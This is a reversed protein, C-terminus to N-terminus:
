TRSQNELIEDLFRSPELEKNYYEKVEYIHLHHRARTMAVYFMRREEEIEEPLVAKKYPSLGENADPILVVDYELGKASHMTTVAVGECNEVRDKRSHELLESRYEEIGEFWEDFSSYQKASEAVEDLVEYLDEVNIHRYEAYDKLYLNYGIAKRVFNVAAFPKLKSLTELEYRLQILNDAAWDKGDYREIMADFSFEPEMLLERSIYRNPRNIIRLFLARERNGLAAKIYDFVNKAAFHDYICPVKDRTFFPINYEMLRQVLSGAQANTRYIVSMESYPIGKESYKRLTDIIHTNEDTRNKMHHIFVPEEYDYNSVLKKEYRTSNHNILRESGEVINKNCRYNVGLLTIRCNPYDDRFKLMIEPRAGRFGYISQDDDGVIFLNNYPEALMKTIQYQLKNIDQFEDVLIYRYHKQLKSLIDPRESLLEYCYVMMDDFDLKGKGTIIGQYERYIERFVEEGVVSSYFHEEPIMDGKMLSIEKSIDSIVDEEDDYELNRKQILERLLKYKDDETFISGNDYGYAVKLIYFFVSHFTGFTPSGKDFNCLARFREEMERASARTFTIVLINSPFVHEEEILYKIRHVIATTKGSGPGALALMPGNIHHIAELQGKNFSNM